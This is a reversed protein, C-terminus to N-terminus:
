SIQIVERGCMLFDPSLLNYFREPGAALFDDVYVLFAAVHKREGVVTIDLLDSDDPFRVTRPHLPCPARVVFWLSPHCTSQRLGTSM